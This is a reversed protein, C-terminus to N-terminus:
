RLHLVRAALTWTDDCGFKHGRHCAIIVIIGEEREAHIPPVLVSAAVRWRTHAVVLYTEEEM